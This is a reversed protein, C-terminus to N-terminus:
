QLKSLERVFTNLTLARGRNFFSVSLYPQLRLSSGLPVRRENTCRRIMLHNSPWDKESDSHNQRLNDKVRSLQIDTFYTRATRHSLAACLLVSVRGVTRLPWVFFVLLLPTTMTVDQPVKNELCVHELIKVMQM